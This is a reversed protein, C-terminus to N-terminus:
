TYCVHVSLQTVYDHVDSKLFFGRYWIEKKSLTLFNGTVNCIVNKM